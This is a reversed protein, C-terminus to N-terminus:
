CACTDHSCDLVCGIPTGQRGFLSLKSGVLLRGLYAQQWWCRQVSTGHCCLQADSRM